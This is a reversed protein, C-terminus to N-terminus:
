DKLRKIKLIWRKNKSAKVPPIIVKIFEEFTYVVDEKEELSLNDFVEALTQGKNEVNLKQEEFFTEAYPYKEIIEEATMEKLKDKSIM